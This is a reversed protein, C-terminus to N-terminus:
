NKKLEFVPPTMGREVTVEFPTTEPRTYVDPILSERGMYTKHVTFIVKYKGAIAGDGPDVTTLVFSGDKPDIDGRAGKRVTGATAGEAVPEFFVTAVEGQPVTGDTFKVTGRVPVMTVGPGGSCGAALLLVLPLLTRRRRNMATRTSHYTAHPTHHADEDRM